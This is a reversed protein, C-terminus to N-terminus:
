SSPIPRNYSLYAVYSLTLLMWPETMKGTEREEGDPLSSRETLGMVHDGFRSLRGMVESKDGSAM